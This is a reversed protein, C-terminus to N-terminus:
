HFLGAKEIFNELIAKPPTWGQSLLSDADYRAKELIAHDRLIDSIKLEPLGHQRTGYFEGPGRIELDKEAIIFGNNHDQMIKMRKVGDENVPDSVFFCFSQYDGRGVRGRLQHLQAMGFREANLIIMVSANPVDVGVEIVTTSILIDMEKDRFLRMIEEKETGKMKGHLLGVRLDSFFKKRLSEAEKTASKLTQNETEEILPCVIYAQRGKVIEGRVFEYIKAVSSFRIWKNKIELRGPPMEDIVSIDLDGYLTLALTRPIPTATMVLLDPNNGKKQLMTRQMVGFRHQEDIVIIGLNRFVVDDQILAHTGVVVHIEGNKIQNYISEKIKKGLSGTLLSVKIGEHSLLESFKKYHQEALIETPAMIGGQFGSDVASKIACAAVVTKGSGVDGQVLRSMPKNSKLDYFIENLVKRQASTFAFPLRSEFVNIISEDISYKREKIIIERKGKLLLLGAQLFFLEEYILRGRAVRLENFSSPFHMTTIADKIKSFSYKNIITEPLCEELSSGHIDINNKIIRRLSIQSLNETLPYIPVIRNTHLPDADTITEFEPNSILIENNKREIKGSAYVKMGIDFQRSRFPQNFWVLSIRGTEDAIIVKTITFYRNPRSEIKSIVSGAITEFSGNGSECIPTLRSRDEYRRPFHFLLDKITEIGLIKMKKALQPGIGKAEIINSGIPPINQNKITQVVVSKANRNDKYDKNTKHSETDCNILKGLIERSSEFIAARKDPLSSKYHMFQKKISNLREIIAKDRTEKKAEEIWHNVYEDFGGFVSINRFNMKKELHFPKILTAICESLGPM